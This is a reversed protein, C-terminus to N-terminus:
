RLETPPVWCLALVDGVAAPPGIEPVVFGAVGHAVLLERARDVSGAVLAAKALVEAGAARGAVVTVSVVEGDTPRGSGPDILHHARREGDSWCRRLTSSTAVAGDALGLLALRSGDRLDDVAVPWGGGAPPEGWVRLDGGLDILGAPHAQLEDALLDATWGKGIGGLDIGVRAPLRITGASRDVEIGGCGPAPAGTGIPGHGAARDRDYGAAVLANLVTPDFRGVTAAWWRCAAEVLEITEPHVVVARGGSSNLRSVDSGDLFRSWRAEREAVLAVVADLSPEAGPGALWARVTTGM